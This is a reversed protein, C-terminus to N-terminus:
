AHLRREEAYKENEHWDTCAMGRSISTYPLAAHLALVAVLIVSQSVDSVFDLCERGADVFGGTAGCKRSKVAPGTSANSAGM